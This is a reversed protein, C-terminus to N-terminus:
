ATQFCTSFHADLLSQQLAFMEKEEELEQHDYGLLHLFGHTVLFALERELSQNRELAQEQAKELSVIIDGLLHNELDQPFSLVDTPQDKERYEYNLNHITANDSFTVSVITGPNCDTAKGLTELYAVWRHNDLKYNLRSLLDPEIELNIYIEM